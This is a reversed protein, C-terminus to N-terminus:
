PAKEQLFNEFMSRSSQEERQYQAILYSWPAVALFLYVLVVFFLLPRVWRRRHAYLTFWVVVIIALCKSIFITPTAGYLVMVEHLFHNGEMHVGMLSLGLYTLLGDLLQVIVLALGLILAKRSLSVTGLRVLVTPNRIRRGNFTIHETEGKVVEFHFKKRFM